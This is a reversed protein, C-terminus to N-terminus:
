KHESYQHVCLPPYLAQTNRTTYIHKSYQHVCLAPYLAQTNRTTYIHKSYQHVCLTPCLAQTNRTTYKCADVRSPCPANQGFEGEISYFSHRWLGVLFLALTDLSPRIGLMVLLRRESFLTTSTTKKAVFVIRKVSVTYSLLLQLILFEALSSSHLRYCCYCYVKNM